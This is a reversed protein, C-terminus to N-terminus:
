FLHMCVFSVERELDDHEDKVDLDVSSIQFTDAFPLSNTAMGEAAQLLGEKNYTWIKGGGLTVDDTQQENQMSRLASLEAELEIAEMDAAENAVDVDDEVDGREKRKKNAKKKSLM